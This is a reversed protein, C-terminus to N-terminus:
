AQALAKAAAAHEATDAGHTKRPLMDAIRTPLDIGDVFEAVEVGTTLERAAFDQDKSRWGGNSDRNWDRTATVSSGMSLAARMHIQDRRVEITVTAHPPEQAYLDAHLARVQSTIDSVLTRVGRLSHERHALMLFTQDAAIPSLKRMMGLARHVQALFKVPSDERYVTLVMHAHDRGLNPHETLMVDIQSTIKAAVDRSADAEHDAVLALNSFNVRNEDSLQCRCRYLTALRSHEEHEAIARNRKAVMFSLRAVLYPDDKASEPSAATSSERGAAGTGPDINMAPTHAAETTHESAM